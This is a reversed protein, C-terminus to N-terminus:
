SASALFVGMWALVHVATFLLASTLLLWSLAAMVSTGSQAAGRRQSLCPLCYNIGEWRTACEGCVVKRCSMCTAAGPRQPHNACRRAELTGQGAASM